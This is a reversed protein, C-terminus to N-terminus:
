GMANALEEAFRKVSAKIKEGTKSSPHRRGCVYQSLQAKNIGTMRSLGSLTLLGKYQQLFASTDYIFDFDLDVDVGTRQLHDERMAAYLQLFDKIAEESTNGEGFFGFPLDETFYVTFWGNSNCEVHATIKKKMIGNQFRM